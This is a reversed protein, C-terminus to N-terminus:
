QDSEGPVAEMAVVYGRIADVIKQYGTCRCLNGAIAERIEDDSPHENKSLLAVASMIMGPTCFGCQVAGFKVFNQQIQALEPIAEVGEITLVESGDLQPALVLCSNVPLRNMIVTCAGCEGDNCGIKTGRLGLHDRLIEALSTYPNVLVKVKMGNVTFRVNWFQDQPKPEEIEM